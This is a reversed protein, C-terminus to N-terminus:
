LDGLLPDGDGVVLTGLGEGAVVERALIHCVRGDVLSVRPVGAAVAELSAELKPRMGGGAEGTALLEAAAAVSLVRKLEGAVLVGPVDSLFVLLSAGLAAAVAGAVSDANVNMPRGETDSATSSLVPLYGHDLLLLLVETNVSEVAGVFGIDRGGPRHPRVALLGADTGSLGLAHGGACNLLSVVRKNITGSLVMEAVEATDADTVRYGDVFVTEIGMRKMTRTLAPGGGHVVVVRWGDRGLQVVDGAWSAALEQDGMAAGGYKVVLLPLSPAQSM